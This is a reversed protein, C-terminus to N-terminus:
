FWSIVSCWMANSGQCRWVSLSPCGHTPEIANMSFHSCFSVLKSHNEFPWWADLWRMDIGSLENVQIYLYVADGICKLVISVNIRHSQLASRYLNREDMSSLICKELVFNYENLENWISMMAPLKKKSRVYWFSLIRKCSDIANWKWHWFIWKAEFYSSIHISIWENCKAGDEVHVCRQKSM